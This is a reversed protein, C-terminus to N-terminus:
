KVRKKSNLLLANEKPSIIVQDVDKTAKNTKKMENKRKKEM